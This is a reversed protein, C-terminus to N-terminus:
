RIRRYAKEGARRRKISMTLVQGSRAQPRFPYGLSLHFWSADGNDPDWGELIAQGFKIGSEDVVWSFVEPLPVGIVHFDGAEFKRHQSTKSGGIAANLGTRRYASHVSVPRGYHSRIQQLMQALAVGAGELAVPVQRNEYVYDRHTTVTLERWSFNPAGPIPKSLDILM